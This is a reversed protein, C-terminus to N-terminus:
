LPLQAVYKLIRLHEKLTEVTFLALKKLQNSVRSVKMDEQFLGFAFKERRTHM